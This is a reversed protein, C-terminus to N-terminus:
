VKPRHQSQNKWFGEVTLSQKYVHGFPDCPKARPFRISDPHLDKHKYTVYAVSLNGWLGLVQQILLAEGVAKRPYHKKIFNFLDEPKVCFFSENFECHHIILYDQSGQITKVDEDQGMSFANFSILNANPFTNAVTLFTVDDEISEKCSFIVM